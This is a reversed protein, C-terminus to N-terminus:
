WHVFSLDDQIIELINVNYLCLALDGANGSAVSSLCNSSHISKYHLTIPYVRAEPTCM